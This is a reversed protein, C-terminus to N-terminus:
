QFRCNNYHCSKWWQHCWLIVGNIFSGIMLLNTDHCSELETYIRWIDSKISTKSVMKHWLRNSQIDESALAVDTHPKNVMVTSATSLSFYEKIVRDIGYNSDDWQQSILSISKYTKHRGLFFILIVLTLRWNEKVWQLRSLIAAMKWVVNQFPNKKFSFTHIEIFFIM